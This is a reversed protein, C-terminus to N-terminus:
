LRRPPELALIAEGLKTSIWRQQGEDDGYKEAAGALNMYVQRGIQSLTMGSVRELKALHARVPKALMLGQETKWPVEELLAAAEHAEINPETELSFISDGPWAEALLYGLRIARDRETRSNGRNCRNLLYYKQVRAYSQPWMGSTREWFVNSLTGLTLGCERAIEGPAQGRRVLAQLMRRPV